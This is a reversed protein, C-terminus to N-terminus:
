FPSHILRGDGGAAAPDRWHAAAVSAPSVSVHDWGDGNSAIIRLQRKDIPSLVVFAGCIADGAPHVGWLMAINPPLMVRYRSLENLNRMTEEPLFEAPAV